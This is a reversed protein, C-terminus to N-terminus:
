GTARLQFAALRRDFVQRFHQAQCVTMGFLLSLQAAVEPSVDALVLMAREQSLGLTRALQSYRRVYQQYGGTKCEIWFIRGAVSVLLDLECDSQNPLVIQANAVVGAELGFAQAAELVQCRIFRELWQGSFFNQARPDSSSRAEILYRPARYYRYETLFAIKHLKQCFQCCAGIEEQPRGELRECWVGGTQMTSKIRGLVSRLWPYRSGLFSATQDLVDDAPSRPPLRRISIGRSSLLQAIPEPVLPEASPSLPTQSAGEPTEAPSETGDASASGTTSAAGIGGQLAGDALRAVLIELAHAIRDLRTLLEAQWNDSM